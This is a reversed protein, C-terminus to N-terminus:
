QVGTGQAGVVAHCGNIIGLGTRRNKCAVESNEAELEIM